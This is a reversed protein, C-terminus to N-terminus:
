LLIELGDTEPFPASLLAADDAGEKILSHLIILKVDCEILIIVLFEGGSAFSSDDEPLPFRVVFSKLKVTWCEM